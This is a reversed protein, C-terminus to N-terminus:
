SLPKKSPTPTPKVEKKKSLLEILRKNKNKTAYDLATKGKKDKISVDAGKALLLEVVKIKNKLVAKHLPTYGDKDLSDLLCPNAKLIKEVKAVDGKEAAKHIEGAQVVSAFMFIILLASIIILGNKKM